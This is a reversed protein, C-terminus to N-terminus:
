ALTLCYGGRDGFCAFVELGRNIDRLRNRSSRSMALVAFPVTAVPPRVQAHAEGTTMDPAAIGARVAVGAFVELLGTM